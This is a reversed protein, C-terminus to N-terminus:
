SADEPDYPWAAARGADTLTLRCDPMKIPNVLGEAFLWDAVQHYVTLAAEGDDYPNGLISTINSVRVRRGVREAEALVALARARPETLKM